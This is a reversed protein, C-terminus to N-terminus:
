AESFFRHPRLHLEQHALVCVGVVAARTAVDLDETRAYKLIISATM